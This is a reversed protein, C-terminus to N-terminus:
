LQQKIHHFVLFSQNFREYNINYSTIFRWLCLCNALTFPSPHSADNESTQNCHWAIHLVNNLM